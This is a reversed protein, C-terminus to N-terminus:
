ALAGGKKPEEGRWFMLWGILTRSPALPNFTLQYFIGPQPPRAFSSFLHKHAPSNFGQSSLVAFKSIFFDSTHSSASRAHLLAVKTADLESTHRWTPTAPCCTATPAARPRGRQSVPPCCTPPPPRRRRRRLPAAESCGATYWPCLSSCWAGWWRLCVPWPFPLRTTGLTITCSAQTSPVPISVKINTSEGLHNVRCEKHASTGEPNIKWPKAVMGTCMM